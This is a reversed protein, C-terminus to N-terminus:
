TKKCVQNNASRPSVSFPEILNGNEDIEAEQVQSAPPRQNNINLQRAPVYRQQQKQQQQQQQQQQYNNLIPTSSKNSGSLASDAMEQKISM